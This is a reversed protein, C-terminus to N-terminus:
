MIVDYLRADTTQRRIVATATRVSLDNMASLQSADLAEVSGLGDDAIWAAAAANYYCFSPLGIDGATAALPTPSFPDRTVSEPQM